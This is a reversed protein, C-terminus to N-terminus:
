IKEHHFRWVVADQPRRIGVTRAEFGPTLSEHNTRQDDHGRDDTCVIFLRMKSCLSIRISALQEGGPTRPKQLVGHCRPQCRLCSLQEEGNWVACEDELLGGDVPPIEGHASDPEVDGPAQVIDNGPHFALREITAIDGHCIDSTHDRYLWVPQQLDIGVKCIEVIDVAYELHRPWHFREEPENHCRTRCNRDWNRYNQPDSSRSPRLM